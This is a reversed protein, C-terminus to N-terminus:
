GTKRCIEIDEQRYVEELFIGFFTFGFELHYFHSYQNYNYEGGQFILSSNDPM